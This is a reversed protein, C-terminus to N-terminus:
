WKKGTLNEIIQFDSYFEKEGNKDMYEEHGKGALLFIHSNMLEVGKKTAEVRSCIKYTEKRGSLGSSADDIIQLPDETRPNDTTLIIIDSYKEVAKAMLPRKSRDRDGGCGFLTILPKDPYIDKLTKTINELADPTHAYDVVIVGKNTELINFRGRPPRLFSLDQGHFSMGTLESVVALALELNSKNFGKSFILPLNNCKYAELIKAKVFQVNKESLKEELDKSDEPIFLKGVLSKYINLKACLYKEMNEHYDLHDQTLNTWAAMEIPIDLLRNQDLSHSSLEIACYTIEEDKLRYLIKRLDLYSPTTTGHFDLLKKENLFVGVTGITITKINKSNLLSAVLTTVTTKGNTGTVGIFKPYKKVPYFLDCLEKLLNDFENQICYLRKDNLEIKEKGIILKAKSHEVRDKFNKIDKISNRTHYFVIETAKANQLNLTIDTFVENCNISYKKLISQISNNM